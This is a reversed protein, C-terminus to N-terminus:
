LVARCEIYSLSTEHNSFEDSQDLIGWRTGTPNSTIQFEVFVHPSESATNGVGSMEFRLVNGRRQLRYTRYQNDLVFGGFNVTETITGNEVCRVQMYPSGPSESNFFEISVGVGTIDEYSGGSPGSSVTEITDNGFMAFGGSVTTNVGQGIVYPTRIRLSVRMEWITIPDNDNKTGQDWSVVCQQNFLNPFLLLHNNLNSSTMFAPLSLTTSTYGSAVFPPYGFFNSFPDGYAISWLQMIEGFIWSQEYSSGSATITEWSLVGTDAGTNTYKLYQNASGPEPLTLALNSVSEMELTTNQTGKLLINDSIFSSFSAVGDFFLNTGGNIEGEIVVTSADLPKDFNIENNSYTINCDSTNDTNRFTLTEPTLRASM